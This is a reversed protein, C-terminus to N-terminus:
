MQLKRSSHSCILVFPFSLSLTLPCHIPPGLLTSFSKSNLYQFFQVQFYSSIISFNTMQFKSKVLMGVELFINWPFVFYPFPTKQHQRYLMGLNSVVCNGLLLSVILYVEHQWQFCLIYLFYLLLSYFTILNLCLATHVSHNHTHTYIYIFIYCVNRIYLHIYKQNNIQNNIGIVRM